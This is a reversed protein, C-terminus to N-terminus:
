KKAEEKAELPVSGTGTTTLSTNPNGFLNFLNSLKSSITFYFGSKGPGAALNVGPERVGTFNYGVGFRLDPLLWYGVETGLSMRRTGTVPQALWRFEAAGDFHESFRNQLRGQAMYTFTSVRALNPQGDEGSKIAVRGYFELQKTLSLLGDTSLTNARDVTAVVGPGGEQITSRRNYSFLLAVRDSHLPRLALAATGSMTSNWRGDLSTKAWQFSGLTTIDDGLKGAAGLTIAQGFGNHDRLEYRAATRFNKTPLWSFGVSGGNFSAGAGTLHQGREFGLELSLTDSIPLKNALGIVAFSDKGNVGNEIQYRSNLTTLRGLKTEVGFAMENRAKTFAFGTKSLDSIPVIPASALRQTYFLRTLPNLQYSASLTTQNPYTPDADGLNQERKIALTLKDFPKWDAGLTFLHSSIETQNAGSLKRFDYASTLKLREGIQENWGVSATVRQNDVTDTKNREQGVGFRLVSSPRLKLDITALARRSGPAVTAGFPNLFGADAQMVSARLISEYFPLPQNLEARYSQGNHQGDDQDTGLLNGAVAVHGRSIGWELLLTGGRPLKKELDIGGLYFPGAEPQKQNVVTAGVRLGLTNFQKIARGTYVASALGQASYEYTVVVQLLNLQFDFTSISRLLFIAGTNVDLNYDISRSLPERSIIIEPNRRDRIELVVTESGPLIQAQSLQLFGFRSGPFVDRAFATDPRAGTVTLSDGQANELHLKVGTLNRSYGTLMRATNARAAAPGNINTVDQDPNFDGFMLFSAGRDLRAYLKSNSRAEEFRTSSDGFITYARDRPDLEYLRDRAATRHFPRHSDYALTLLNNGFVSGRYFFNIRSSMGGQVGQWDRDPAARGFTTEAMGVLITSRMEPLFRVQARAEIQGAQALLQANGPANGAVLYARAEGGSLSLRQQRKALDIQEDQTGPVSEVHLGSGSDLGGRISSQAVPMRASNACPATLRASGCAESILAGSSVELLVQDDAAPHNWQDFARVSVLTSERGDATIGNKDTVIELRKAPGRGYVITEVSSGAKGEPSVATIRIRNSGPSVNIGIFAYSSVKNKHDVRREGILSESLKEGNVEAVVTWGEAVTAELRMAASVIVQDLLPSDIRAAGPAVPVVDDSAQLEYTGAALPASAPAASSSSPPVSSPLSASVNTGAGVPGRNDAEGEVPSLAFNQRLLAGGGLPTRMLKTWSRAAIGGDGLLKYGRVISIPDLAITVSGESVLPFNYMGESDTNVSDGNSLYLRAKSLSRDGQDFEGNANVDVFVRGIIARQMGFIGRGVVVGARATVTSVKQASSSLGEANVSNFQEGTTANAGIRVRYTLTVTGGPGLQGLRFLMENGAIEPEVVRPTGVAAEVRSTGRVYHFSAPLRDRMVIEGISSVLANHAVIRYSVTDGIDARQKDATKSIEFNANEFLPVNLVLFALNEIRVADRTLSFSGGEAIPQDDIARVTLDYLDLAGPRLTAELLRRHFGPAIVSVFYTAPQAESGIQSPSLAFSFNGDSGTVFPNANAGNPAVGSNATLLIPNVGMQDTSVVVKAGGVKLAGSSGAAYVIGFAESIVVADSTPRATRLNDASIMANNITGTGGIAHASFRARFRIEVTQGPEVETLRVEIRGNVVQIAASNSAKLVSLGTSNAPAPATTNVVLSDPIYELNIPLQDVVVVNRGPADGSNTFSLSYTLTQGPTATIRDKGDVLMLPRQQPNSPSSFIPGTGILSIITGEDEAATGGGHQGAVVASLHMTVLSGTATDNTDVVALVGLCRDSYFSPSVTTGVIVPTDGSSVIGNDDLDFYFGVLAAPANVDASKLIFSEAINGTNCLRFVKTIREQPTHATSAATDDPTVALGPVAGVTLTVTESITHILEGAENFYSAEAHVSIIAGAPTSSDPSQAQATITLACIVVTLLKVLMAKVTGPIRM